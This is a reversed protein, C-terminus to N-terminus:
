KRPDMPTGGGNDAFGGRNYGNYGRENPRRASDPTYQGEGGGPAQAYGRYDGGYRLGVSNANYQGLVRSDRQVGGNEVHRFGADYGRRPPVRGASGQRPHGELRPHHFIGQRDYSGDGEDYVGNFGGAFRLDYPHNMRHWGYAGHRHDYQMRQGHYDGDHWNPDLPQPRGWRPGLDMERHNSDYRAM